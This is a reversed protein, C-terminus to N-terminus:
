TNLLWMSANLDNAHIDQISVPCVLLKTLYMPSGRLQDLYCFDIDKIQNQRIVNADGTM